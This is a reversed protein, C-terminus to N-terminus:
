KKKLKGGNAFKNSFSKKKNLKGGRANSNGANERKKREETAKARNSKAQNATEIQSQTPTKKKEEVEKTKVTQLSGSKPKMAEKVAPVGYLLGAAIPTILAAGRGVKRGTKPNAWKEIREMKKYKKQLEKNADLAATKKAPKGKASKVANDTESKLSSYNKARKDYILGRQGFYGHSNPGLAEANRLHKPTYEFKEKVATRNAARENKKAEEAAKKAAEEDSVNKEKANAKGPM